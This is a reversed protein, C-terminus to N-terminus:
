HSSASIACMSATTASRAAIWTTCGPWCTASRPRARDPTGVIAVHTGAAIDISIDELVPASHPDYRFSVGDVTVQGRM